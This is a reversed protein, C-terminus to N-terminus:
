RVHTAMSFYRSPAIVLFSLSWHRVVFNAASTRRCQHCCLTLTVPCLPCVCSYIVNVTRDMSCLLQCINKTPRCDRDLTITTPVLPCCGHKIQFLAVRDSDADQSYQTSCTLATDSKLSANNSRNENWETANTHICFYEFLVFALHSIKQWEAKINKKKTFQIFWSKLKLDKNLTPHYQPHHPPCFHFVKM